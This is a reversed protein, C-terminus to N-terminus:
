YVALNALSYSEDDSDWDAPQYTWYGRRPDRAQLCGWQVAWAWMACASDGCNCTGPTREWQFQVQQSPDNYARYVEVSALFNADVDGDVASADIAEWLDPDVLLHRDIDIVVNGGSISAARLPKIEWEDAQSQGPFYCHIENVDTVTTPLTIRATEFYGDGDLDTLVMTDAPNAPATRIATGISATARIGGSIGWGRAARVSLYLGRPNIVDGYHLTPDNYPGTRRVEAAIWQPVPYYGLAEIIESEAQAIPQAGDERGIRDSNQWPYQLWPQKCARIPALTSQLGNFHRPELGLHYAWRDLPVLTRTNARGM